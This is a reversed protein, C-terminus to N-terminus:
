QVAQTPKLSAYDSLQQHAIALAVRQQSVTAIVTHQLAEHDAASAQFEAVAANQASRLRGFLDVQWALSLGTEDHTAVDRKGSVSFYKRNASSILDLRSLRDGTASRLLAETESLNAMTIKIDYNHSLAKTALNNILPDNFQKWWTKFNTQNAGTALFQNSENQVFPQNSLENIDSHNYEPTLSCAPLLGFCIAALPIFMLRTYKLIRM